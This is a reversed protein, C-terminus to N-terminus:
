VGNKTPPLGSHKVSSIEVHIFVPSDVTLWVKTPFIWQSSAESPVSHLVIGPCMPPIFEIKTSNSVLPMKWNQQEACRQTEVLRGVEERTYGTAWGLVVGSCFTKDRTRVGEEGWHILPYSWIWFIKGFSMQLFPQSSTVIGQPWRGHSSWSLFPSASQCSCPPAQHQVARCKLSPYKTLGSTLRPNQHATGRPAFLPHRSSGTKRSCWAFDVLFHKEGTHPGM